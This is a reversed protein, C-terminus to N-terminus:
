QKVKFKSLAAWRADAPEASCGCEGENLNAGCSPCLGRCEGRCLRSMPLALEIQEIILVDVDIVEDQYSGVSLDDSVLENEREIGLPPIYLLDFRPEVRISIPKLCRDCVFSATAAVSGVMQVKDGSREAQANVETRGELRLDSGEFRPEGDPFLHHIRLGEDESIQAVNIKMKQG